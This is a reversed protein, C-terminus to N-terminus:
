GATVKFPEGIKYVIVLTDDQVTTSQHSLVCNNDKCYKAEDFEIVSSMEVLKFRVILYRSM